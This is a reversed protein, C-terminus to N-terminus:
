DKGTSGSQKARAPDYDPNVTPMQAGVATRWAAIREKLAAVRKPEKGALNRTEAPDDRLNFLEIPAGAGALSTEYYEILKWDGARM